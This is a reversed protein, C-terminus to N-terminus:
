SGTRSETTPLWCRGTRPVAEFGFHYFVGPAAPVSTAASVPLDRATYNHIVFGRSAASASGATWLMGVLACLVIASLWRIRGAAGAWSNASRMMAGMTPNMVAWLTM